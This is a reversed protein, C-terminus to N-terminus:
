RIRTSDEKQVNMEWRVIGELRWLNVEGGSDVVGVDIRIPGNTEINQLLLPRRSEGNRLDQEREARQEIVRIRIVRQNWLDGLNVLIVLSLVLRSGPLPRSLIGHSWQYYYIVSRDLPLWVGYM